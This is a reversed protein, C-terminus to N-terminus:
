SHEKLFVASTERVSQEMKIFDIGIAKRIKENSYSRTENAARATEKTILARKGPLRSRLFEARWGLETLFSNVKIKAEPKGLYRAVMEFFIKYSLNESILLFRETHIGSKMLAVMAGSVDRVDVFANGGGTFFKLEENWVKPFIDTSSKGWEGPGVIIGPNVIVANLGEEIGRWVEVESLHKSLAYKSEPEGERWLNKENILEGGKTKGTAATSSVYCLKRIQKKLAINVVNASGGVNIKMLTSADEPHFSVLAACHYIEDVEEMAKELSSLDLVDGEVWEVETKLEGLLKEAFLINSNSRKLARVKDGRKVLDAILHSGVLGSAGTILKKM